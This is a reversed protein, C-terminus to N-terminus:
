LSALQLDETAHHQYDRIRSVEQLLVNLPPLNFDRELLTPISGHCAYTFALLDWVPDIVDAGHTDIIVSETEQLHGAVHMYVIRETPMSRIYQQADFGHNFSNVYVNNVDLMLDCDAASLVKLIFEQESMESEPITYASVNEIAIRRGLQQQVKQIRNSVHEVAAETFPLPILDYLHGSDGCYSLHESYFIVQHKDFFQGLRDIFELDLPAPGGLNLSLGHCVTPYCRTFESLDHAFRGGLNMWNEPTVEIFDPKNRTAQRLENVLGRRLGLGAGQLQINKMLRDM